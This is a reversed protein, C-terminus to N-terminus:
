LSSNVFNLAKNQLFPSLLNGENPEKSYRMTNFLNIASKLQDDPLEEIIKILKHHCTPRVVKKDNTQQIINQYILQLEDDNMQTLMQNIKHINKGRQIAKQANISIQSAMRSQIKRKSVKPM